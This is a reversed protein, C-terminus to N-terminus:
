LGLEVEPFTINPKEQSKGDLVKKYVRLKASRARKNRDLECHDAIIPRKNLPIFSPNSNLPPPMYRNTVIARGSTMKGFDKTNTVM